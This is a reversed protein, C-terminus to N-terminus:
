QIEEWSSQIYNSVSRKHHTLRPRCLENLSCRKCNKGITAKPTKGNEYLHHMESALLQVKERLADIVITEVRKNIQKYYIASKEIRINFMEELCMVQAVLQLIDSLDKKPKGKKYEVVYPTWNGERNDLKVGNKSKRYELVDIIGNVGLKSSSIPVARTILKDKRTEEYYKDDAIAHVLGGIVTDENEEWVQEITILAWQRPCFVYHQIGNLQLKM